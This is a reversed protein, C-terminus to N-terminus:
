RGVFREINKADIIHFIIIHFRRGRGEDIMIRYAAASFQLWGVCLIDAFIEIKRYFIHPQTRLTQIPSFQCCRIIKNKRRFKIRIIIPVFKKGM